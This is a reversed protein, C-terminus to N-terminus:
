QEEGEKISNDYSYEGFYKEEAKKRTAIADNIYNFEGLSIKKNDYGISAIWKNRSNSWFVGTIGSKNRRDMRRNCSNNSKTCVRLNSRRNNSPNHDIHDVVLDPNTVNLIYRHLKTCKNSGAFSVLYGYKDFSWAYKSVADYDEKDITFTRGNANSVIYYENNILKYTNHVCKGCSKTNGSKM